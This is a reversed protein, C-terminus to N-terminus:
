EGGGMASIDDMSVPLADSNAQVRLLNVVAATEATSLTQAFSPMTYPAPNAPTTPAVAGLTILKVLNIPDAQAIASSGRLSPYKGEIGEGADGHCSACHRAYVEAGAALSEASILMAVRPKRPRPPAPLTRLYVDIAQADDDALHQTNGAIVDAMIGYGGVGGPADGQLYRAVDGDAFRQLSAGHLAPAFWGANRAGWLQEGAAQSALTGRAAHCTGCHGIGNVLYAGRALTADAPARSDSPRFYLLRWALSAGPLNAPFVMANAKRPTASPPVSRLHSLLADLDADSLHRFSAYPFVPSLVGNRSVGHRMAHRFEEVSWAGIGHVPDPTINSSFVVGYETTFARGGALEAGGRETHCGSCNGIMALYSGRELSERSDDLPMSLSPASQVPVRFPLLGGQRAVLVLLVAGIALLLPVLLAVPM